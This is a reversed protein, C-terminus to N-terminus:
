QLSSKPPWAHCPDYSWYTSLGRQWPCTTLWLPSFSIYIYIIFYVSKFHALNLNSLCLSAFSNWELWSAFSKVPAKINFTLTNCVYATYIYMNSICIKLHSYLYYGPRDALKLLIIEEFLTKLFINQSLWTGRIVLSM